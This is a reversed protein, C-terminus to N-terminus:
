LNIDNSSFWQRIQWLIADPKKTVDIALAQDHPELLALQGSLLSPSMFHGIRNTLRQSLLVPDGHLWVIWVREELGELLVHRHRKKLASCAVVVVKHDLESRKLEKALRHLWPWRDADDLPIGRSMKDVNEVPHFDDGELFPASLADALKRGITTKGVGCVGM